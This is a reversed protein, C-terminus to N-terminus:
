QSIKNYHLNNFSFPFKVQVFDNERRLNHCFAKIFPSGNIPDRIASDGQATAHCIM